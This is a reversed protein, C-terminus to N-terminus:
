LIILEKPSNNLVTCGNEDLLIDDEIRVGGLSDVYIGPEVTIVSNKKLVLDTRQSIGPM